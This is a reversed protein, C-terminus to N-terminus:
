DISYKTKIIKDMHYPRRDHHRIIDLNCEKLNEFYYDSVPNKDLHQSSGGGIFYLCVSQNLLFYFISVKFVPEFNPKYCNM